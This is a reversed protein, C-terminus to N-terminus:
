KRLQFPVLFGRSCVGPPNFPAVPEPPWSPIPPAGLAEGKYQAPSPCVGQPGLTHGGPRPVRCQPKGTSGWRSRRHWQNACFVQIVRLRLLSEGGGQTAPSGGSALNLSMTGASAAGHGVNRARGEVSPRERHPRLQSQLELESVLEFGSLDCNKKGQLNQVDPPPTFLLPSLPAALHRTGTATSEGGRLCGGPAGWSGSVRGSM